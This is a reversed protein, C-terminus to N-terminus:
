EFAEREISKLRGLALDVAAQFRGEDLPEDADRWRERQEECYAVFASSARELDVEKAKRNFPFKMM